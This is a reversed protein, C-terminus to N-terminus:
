INWGLDREGTLRKPERALLGVWTFLRARAVEVKGNDMGGVFYGMVDWCMADCVQLTDIWGHVWGEFEGARWPRGEELDGRFADVLLPGRVM